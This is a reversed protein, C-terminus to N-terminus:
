AGPLAAQPKLWGCTTKPAFSEVVDKIQAPYVMVGKVKLMDDTRGVIKYRFGSLGCPCPDTFVQHIDNLTFRLNAFFISSDPKLPTFVALGTAVAIGLASSGRWASIGLAIAGFLLVMGLLQISTALVAQGSLDMGFILGSLEAGLWTLAMIILLGLVAVVGLFGMEEALVSFIFDTHRAPLYGLQGQTGELYGRGIVGGSGVAIQSQIKQYGAGKPDLSPDLFTYIRTKQYDRLFPWTLAAAAASVPRSPGARATWSSSRWTWCASGPSRRSWPTHM